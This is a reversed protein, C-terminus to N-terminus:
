PKSAQSKALGAVMAVYEKFEVRGNRDADTKALAPASAGGQKVVPLTAYEGAELSGDHNRDIRDFNGKLRQVAAAQAIRDTGARFEDLSLSKNDDKDWAAFVAEATPAPQAATAPSKAPTQALATSMGGLALAITLYAIRNM